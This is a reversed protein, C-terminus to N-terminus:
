SLSFGQLMEDCRDKAQPCAGLGRGRERINFGMNGGADPYWLFSSGVASIWGQIPRALRPLVFRICCLCGCIRSTGSKEGSYEVHEVDEHEDTLEDSLDTLQFFFPANIVGFVVFSIAEQQASHHHAPLRGGRPATSQLQILAVILTRVTLIVSVCSIM